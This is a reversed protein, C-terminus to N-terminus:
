KAIFLILDLAADKGLRYSIRVRGDCQAFTHVGKSSKVVVDEDAGEPEVSVGKIKDGFKSLDLRFTGGDAKVVTFDAMTIKDGGPLTVTATNPLAAESLHRNKTLDMAKIPNELCNLKVLATNKSLDLATIDNGWCDLETLATNHSLDLFSLSNYRCALSLLNPQGSLDLTKLSNQDCALVKLATNKSLTLTALENGNCRLEELSPNRSADLAKLSNSWCILRKLATFHELGKLDAIESYSVDMEEVAAIQPGTLVGNGGAVNKKVWNRFHADPFNAADVSVDAWAEGAAMVCVLLLSFFWPKLNTARFEVM